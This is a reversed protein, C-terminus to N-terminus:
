LYDHFILVESYLQTLIAGHLYHLRRTDKVMSSVDGFSWRHVACQPGILCDRSLSNRRSFLLRCYRILPFKDCNTRPRIIKMIDNKPKNNIAM